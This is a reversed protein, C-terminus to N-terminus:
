SAARALIQRADALISLDQLIFAPRPLEAILEELMAMAEARRRPRFRLLADALYLRNWPDRPALAVARELNAVAIDRDVWGTILPIRPAETHLRGLIRHGGGTEYREDILIVTEAYDRIKGAVGQRAAAFGSSMEAWLGWHGAAWFFLAASEPRAAAATATKDPSRLDFPATRGISAALRVIGEEALDRGRAYIARRPAGDPAAFMGQFYLARLLRERIAISDPSGELARTYALVAEGIPGADARGSQSGEARREWASDGRTVQAEPSEAIAGGALLAIIGLLVARNRLARAFGDPTPM